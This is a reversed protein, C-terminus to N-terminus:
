ALDPKKRTSKIAAHIHKDHLRVENGSSPRATAVRKPKAKFIETLMDQLRETVYKKNASQSRDRSATLQLIGKKSIIHDFKDLALAKEEASLGKSGPVDFQLRVKTEMKYIHIDGTGTPRSYSFKLEKAVVNWNMIDIIQHIFFSDYCFYLCIVPFALIGTLNVM